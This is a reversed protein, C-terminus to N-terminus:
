KGTRSGPKQLAKDIAEQFRPLSRNKLRKGNIFVTPTSRVGAQLGDRVDQRIKDKIKPDNRDSEFKAQDLGLELAIEHIKRENLQSYNQFLRDHFEWFKGQSGAALAAIAAKLAFKHSRLPFNKFVIKVDHPYKELVQELLPV